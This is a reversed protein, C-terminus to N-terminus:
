ETWYYALISLDALEVESSNTLDARVPPDEKQYWYGIISLDVIDVRQDCNIDGILVCEEDTNFVEEEGIAFEMEHSWESAGAKLHHSRTRVRYDGQPQEDTPWVYYYEGRRNAETNESTEWEEDTSSIETEVEVEPAGFGAVALHDGAKVQLKNIGISPPVQVNDITTLSGSNINVFLTLVRSFRGDSDQSSIELRYEGEELGQLEKSWFAEESDAQATYSGQGNVVIEVEEGPYGYGNIIIDGTEPRSPSDDRVQASINVGAEDQDAIGNEARLEGGAFFVVALGLGLLCCKTITAVRHPIPILKGNDSSQREKFLNSM